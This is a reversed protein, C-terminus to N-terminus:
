EQGGVVMGVGYWVIALSADNSDEVVGVVMAGAATTMPWMNTMDMEREQEIASVFRVMALESVEDDAGSFTADDVIDVLVRNHLM